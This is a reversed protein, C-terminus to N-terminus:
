GNRIAVKAMSRSPSASKPFFLKQQLTEPGSAEMWDVLARYPERVEDNMMMENFM